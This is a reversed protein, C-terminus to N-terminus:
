FHSFSPSLLRMIRKDPGIVEAGSGEGALGIETLPIASEKAARHLAALAAQPVAALIEYDDGGTVVTEILAPDAAVLKRAAASLPLCTAEIRASVASVAALKALDGALGDSIDIAASAHERLAKALVLRPEPVLYREFLYAREKEDLKAMDALKPERRLKLGLASDGVTGTMVIADGPKAGARLVMKGHPVHGFAAISVSLLGPTRDTDGGLLPCRFTEIDAALGDAFAAIWEENISKPLALTLLFGAPEAGKAALDSLNARLAKKAIADAPDGSFFHVSEIVADTTLVLDSGAPPTIVAADDRLGLAGPEYSLPRFYREILDDEGSPM